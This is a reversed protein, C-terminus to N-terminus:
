NTMESLTQYRSIFWKHWYRTMAGHGEGMTGSEYTVRQGIEILVKGPNICFDNKPLRKGTGALVVPVVDCKLQEVLHFAGRRFTHIQGDESRTGEPFILVSYGRDLCSRCHAVMDDMSMTAPFFDAFRIVRGYIQSDWVWEGCMAVMKDGLMLTAPLDLLSQHNAIVLAPKKFTERHPNNLKFFTGPVCCFTYFRFFRRIHRHFKARRRPTDGLLELIRGLPVAVFFIYGVLIGFSLYTLVKRILRKM